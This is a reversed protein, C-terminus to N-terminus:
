TRPRLWSAPLVADDLSNRDSRRLGHLRHAHETRILELLQRGGPRPNLAEIYLTQGDDSPIDLCNHEPPVPKNLQVAVARILVSEGHSHGMTQLWRVVRIDAWEVVFPHDPSHYTTTIGVDDIRVLVAPSLAMQLGAFLGLASVSGVVMLVLKVPWDVRGLVVHTVLGDTAVFLLALSPILLALAWWRNQRCLIPQM